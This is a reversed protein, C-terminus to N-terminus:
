LAPLNVEKQLFVCKMKGIRLHMNHVMFINVESANLHKWKYPRNYKKNSPDDMQEIPYRGQTIGKRVYQNTQNANCTIM